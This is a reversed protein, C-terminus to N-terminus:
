FKNLKALELTLDALQIQYQDRQMFLELKRDLDEEYLIQQVLAEKVLQLEQIEKIIQQQTKM